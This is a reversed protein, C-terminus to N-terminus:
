TKNQKKKWRAKIKKLLKESHDPFLLWFAVFIFLWGQVVPIFGSLVGLVLFVFALPLRVLLPMRRRFAQLKEILARAKTEPDTRSYSEDKGTDGPPTHAPRYEIPSAESM